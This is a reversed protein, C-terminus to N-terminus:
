ARGQGLAGGPRSQAAAQLECPLRLPRRHCQRATPPQPQAGAGYQRLGAGHGPQQPDADIEKNLCFVAYSIKVHSSNLRTSKRDRTSGKKATSSAAGTRAGSVKTTASTGRRPPVTPPTKVSRRSPGTPKRESPVRVGSPD